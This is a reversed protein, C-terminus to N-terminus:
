YWNRPDIVIQHLHHNKHPSSMRVPASHGRLSHTRGCHQSEEPYQNIGVLLSNYPACILVLAFPALLSTSQVLLSLTYVAWYAWSFACREESREPGLSSDQPAVHNSIALHIIHRQMAANQLVMTHLIVQIAAKYKHM